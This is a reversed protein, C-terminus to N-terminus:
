TRDEALGTGYRACRLIANEAKADSQRTRCAEAQRGSATSTKKRYDVVLQLMDSMVRILVVRM